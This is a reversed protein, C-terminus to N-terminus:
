CDDVTEADSEFDVTLSMLLRMLEVQSNCETKAFIRKLYTRLSGLTIGCQEAVQELNMGNVFKACIVLERKTLHFVQKLFDQALHHQPQHMQNLFIVVINGEDRGVNLAPLNTLLMAKLLLVDKNNNLILSETKNLQRHKASLTALIIQDLKNQFGSKTKLKKTEDVRLLISQDLLQKASPNSYFVCGHHDLLVVPKNLCNFIKYLYSEGTKSQDQDYFNLMVLPRTGFVSVAQESLLLSAFLHIEHDPHNSIKLHSERLSVKHINKNQRFVHEINFLNVLFQTHYPEPLILQHNIIKLISQDCMFDRAAQNCHVVQGLFNLLLTPQPLQDILAYGVVAKASFTYLHRQISVIRKLHVLLRDLFALELASLPQRAASTSLSWFVSLRDDGILQHSAVYRLGVPLLINKYLESHQVFEESIHTHCQYWGKRQPRLFVDWRPDADKPYHLYSMEAQAYEQQTLVGVGYSYSSANYLFDIAQIHTYSIDFIEIIRKAFIEWHDGNSPIQYILEVLEEYYDDFKTDM